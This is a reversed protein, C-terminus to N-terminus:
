ENTSIRKRASQLNSIERRQLSLIDCIKGPAFWQKVPLFDGAIGAHCLFQMM